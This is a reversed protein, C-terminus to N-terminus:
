ASTLRQASLGAQKIVMKEDITTLKGDELLIKGNVITHTIDSSHASYVINAIINHLPQMHAKNLDICIMDAKMGPALIGVEKLNLAKAGNATAIRLAEHAPIVEPNFTTAKHILAMTRMESLMDLNNNSAAGDTGLSVNIGAELMAPIPAIGSALKLNSEPNHAVNVNNAKLIALEEKDPHVVHAALVHHKFLGISEMLKIPTMGYKTVMDEVEGKTESLHIHMGVGLESALPIVVDKLLDPPCTYPAHPGLMTTIRGDATNNWKQIFAKSYPISEEATFKVIGRSLCARIGSEEVARAVEDMFFYMDAFTTTGSRLMECIALMSGWYVDEATLKDELPWIKEKLWKMLPLDDAYSRFLSMAAHTHTNVFGPLVVKDSGDIKKDAKWGRPLEGEDAVKIIRDDEIAIDGKKIIYNDTKDDVIIRANSILIKM